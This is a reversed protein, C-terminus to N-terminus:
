PCTSGIPLYYLTTWYDDGEYRHQIQAPTGNVCRQEEPRAPAGPEGQEGREGVPGQEGQSGQIGTAGTQGTDGKVGAVGQLGQVGQAGTQGQIGQKGEVGLTGQPGISSLIPLQSRLVFSNLLTFLLVFLGLFLLGRRQSRSASIEDRLATLKM